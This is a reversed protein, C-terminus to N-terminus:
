QITSAIAGMQARIAAQDAETYATLNVPEQAYDIQEYFNRRGLLRQYLSDFNIRVNDDGELPLDIVPLKDMVGFGYVEILGSEFTPHPDMLLIMYPWAGPQWEAYSPLREVTPRREHLLDIEVVRVGALLTEQRAKEYRMQHSGGPKNAPSLMEIQTVPRGERYVLVALMEDDEVEVPWLSLSLSPALSETEVMVAESRTGSRRILVDPGHIKIMDPYGDMRPDYIRIQLSDEPTASYGSPLREDLMEYLANLYAAQFAKWGGGRQQLQSNLHPNVGPYRNRTAYIPM